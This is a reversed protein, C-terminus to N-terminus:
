RRALYSATSSAQTFMPSIECRGKGGRERNGVRVLLGTHSFGQQQRANIILYPCKSDIPNGNHVDPTNDLTPVCAETSCMAARAKTGPQSSNSRHSLMSRTCPRTEPLYSIPYQM